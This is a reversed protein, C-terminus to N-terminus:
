GFVWFRILIVFCAVMLVVCSDHVLTVRNGPYIQKFRTRVGSGWWLYSIRENSPLRENLKGIMIFSIMNAVIAASGGLCGTIIVPLSIHVAVQM